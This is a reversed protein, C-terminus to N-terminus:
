FRLNYKLQGIVYGFVIKPLCKPPWLVLPPELFFIKPGPGENNPLRCRSLSIVISGILFIPPRSLIVPAQAGRAGVSFRWQLFFLIQPRQGPGRLNGTTVDTHVALVVLVAHLKCVESYDDEIKSSTLTVQWMPDCLTVLWGVCTFV